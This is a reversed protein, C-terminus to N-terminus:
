QPVATRRILQEDLVELEHAHHRQGREIAPYALRRPIDLGAPLHRVLESAVAPLAAVPARAAADARGCFSPDEQAPPLGVVRQGPQVGTYTRGQAAVVPDTAARGASHQDIQRMEPAGAELRAVEPVREAIGAVVHTEPQLLRQTQRAIQLKAQFHRAGSDVLL